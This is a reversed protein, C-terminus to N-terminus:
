KKVVYGSRVLVNLTTKGGNFFDAEVKAGPGLIGKKSTVSKGDAIYHGTEVVQAATKTSEADNTKTETKDAM